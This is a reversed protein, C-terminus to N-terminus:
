NSTKVYFSATQGSFTLYGAYEYGQAGYSNAQAIFDTSTAPLTDALHTFTTSQSQNKMYIMVNIGSGFVNYPAYNLMLNYNYILGSYGQVGESNLQALYDNLNTQPALINYVYTATSTTNKEYLTQNAINTSTNVLQTNFLYGSQGWQDLQSSFNSVSGPVVDGAYSYTYQAAAGGSQCYFVNPSFGTGKLLTFGRAGEANAQAIFDEPPAIECTYTPIVGDNMFISQNGDSFTQTRLYRYGRAGESNLLTLFSNADAAVPQAEYSFVQANGSGGSNNGSDSTSTSNSSASDGGGGGGCATLALVCAVATTLATISQM